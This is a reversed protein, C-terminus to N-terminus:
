GIKNSKSRNCKECLIQLNRYSNSGGKSIPIIHDFEINENSGCQVCKGGDRNWVRDRVNQPISHRKTKSKQTPPVSSFNLFLKDILRDEGSFISIPYNPLLRLINTYRIEEGRNPLTKKIERDYFTRMDKITDKIDEGNRQGDQYMDRFVSVISFRYGEGIQIKEWKGKSIQPNSHKYTIFGLTKELEKIEFEIDFNREEKKSKREEKKSKREKKEKKFEKLKDKLNDSYDMERQIEEDSIKKTM